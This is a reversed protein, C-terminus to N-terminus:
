LISRESVRRSMQNVLLLLTLSVITKMMGVAISYPYNGMKLGFKYIYMDLVEMRQWNTSNTFVYFLDFNSNLIWGSNMILLVLATSMINPLTVYLVRQWRNAGDIEAAEYEEGPVGSIAAMFIVGNYGISKWLSLLIVLQWSYRADGLINIGRKIVGMKILLQNISGSSVSFLAHTMSYVIIWSIFFPFFSITQVVRGFKRSPLENILIAFTMSLVVNLVLVSANIVLTNTMLYGLDSGDVLFTQFQKFGVFNVKLFSQGLRYDTFALIWGLLTVYNFLLVLLVAPAIMLYLTKNRSIALRFGTKRSNKANAHVVSDNLAMGGSNYVM